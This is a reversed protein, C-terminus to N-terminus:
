HKRIYSNRVQEFENQRMQILVYHLLTVPDNQILSLSLTRYKLKFGVGLCASYEIIDELPYIKLADILLALREEEPLELSIDNTFKECEEKFTLYQEM